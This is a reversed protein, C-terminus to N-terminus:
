PECSRLEALDWCWLSRPLLAAGSPAPVLQSPWMRPGATNCPVNTAVVHRNGHSKGLNWANCESRLKGFKILLHNWSAKYGLKYSTSPAVIAKWKTFCWNQPSQLYIMMKTPTWLTLRECWLSVVLPSAIPLVNSAVTKIWPHPHDFSKLEPLWWVSEGTNLLKQTLFHNESKFCQGFTPSKWSSSAWGCGLTAYINWWIELSSEQHSNSGRPNQLRCIWAVLQIEKVKHTTMTRAILNFDKPPLAHCLYLRSLGFHYAAAEMSCKQQSSAHQKLRRQPEITTYM